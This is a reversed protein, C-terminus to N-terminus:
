LFLSPNNNPTDLIPAADSTSVVFDPHDALWFELYRELGNRQAVAHIAQMIKNHGEVSSKQCEAWMSRILRKAARQNDFVPYYVNQVQYGVSVSSPLLRAVPLDRKRKPAKARRSVVYFVFNVNAFAHWLQAVSNEWALMDFRIPSLLVGLASQLQMNRPNISFEIRWVKDLSLGATSWKDLIYPKPTKAKLEKSKLYMYTSTGSERSGWRISEFENAWMEKQGYLCYKNSGKRLYSDRGKTANYLYDRIFLLPSRGGALENFDACLDLRTIRDAVIHFDRLLFLLWLTYDVTYLAANNLRINVSAPDVYANKPEWFLTCFVTDHRAVACSKAFYGSFVSAEFLFWDGFSTPEGSYPIPSSIKGALQLWDVSYVFIPQKM